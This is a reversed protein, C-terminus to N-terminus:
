PNTRRWIEGAIAAGVLIAVGALRALWVSVVEDLLVIAILAPFFAIFIEPRAGFGNGSAM